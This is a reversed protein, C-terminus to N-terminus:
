RNRVPGVFLPQRDCLRVVDRESWLLVTDGPCQPVCSPFCSFRPRPCTEAPALKVPATAIFLSHGHCTLSSFISIFHHPPAPLSDFRVKDTTVPRQGSLRLNRIQEPYRLALDLLVRRENALLPGSLVLFLGGFFYAAIPALAYLRGDLLCHLQSM